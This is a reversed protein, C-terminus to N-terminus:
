ENRKSREANEESVIILMDDDFFKSLVSRKSKHDDCKESAPKDSVGRDNRNFDGSYCRGGEQWWCSKCSNLYDTM